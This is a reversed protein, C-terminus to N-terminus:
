DVKEKEFDLLKTTSNKIEDLCTKLLERDQEFNLNTNSTSILGDMKQVYVYTKFCAQSIALLEKWIFKTRMARDLVFIINNMTFPKDVFDSVGLKLFEKAIELDLNGSVLVIPIYKNTSRIEKTFKFGDMKPMKFDTFIVDVNHTELLKLAEEGNNSTIVKYGHKEILVSLYEVIEEEDDIVLITGKVESVNKPQEQSNNNINEEHELNLTSEISKEIKALHALSDSSDLELLNMSKKLGDNGALLVDMIKPDLIKEKNKISILLTEFVHSFHVIKEFGVVGASGKITHIIRLLKDMKTLDNQDNELQMFITETEELMEKSELIYTKKLEKEFSIDNM